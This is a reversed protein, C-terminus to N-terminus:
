KFFNKYRKGVQTINFLTSLLLVKFYVEAQNSKAAKKEGNKIVPNFFYNKYLNILIQQM